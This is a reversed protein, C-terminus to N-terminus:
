LEGVSDLGQKTNSDMQKDDSLFGGTMVHARDCQGGRWGMGRVLQKVKM